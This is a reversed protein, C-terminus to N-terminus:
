KKIIIKLNNIISNYLFITFRSTKYTFPMNRVLTAYMSTYKREIRWIGSINMRVTRVLYHLKSISDSLVKFLFLIKKKDTILENVFLSNMLTKQESPQMNVGIQQSEHIRYDILTENMYGLKNMQALRLGIWMDHYVGKSVRFPLVIDKAKKTIVLTAGTIMNGCIAMYEFLNNVRLINLVQNFGIADFLKKGHCISHSDMLRADTFVGLMNNAKLFQIAKSTKDKHWIDDQDSFFIYDGQCEILAREFNNLFGCNYENRHLEIKDPYRDKYKQLIAFTNDTSCDDFIVLQDIPFDQKLISDIQEEVFREGNYTCMAVSIM